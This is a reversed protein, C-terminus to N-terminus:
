KQSERSQQKCINAYGLLILSPTHLHALLSPPPPTEEAGRLLGALSGRPWPLPQPLPVRRAAAGITPPAPLLGAPLCLAAVVRPHRGSGGRAGGGGWPRAGSAGARRGVEGRPGPRRKWGPSQVFPCPRLRSRSRPMMRPPSCAFPAINRCPSLLGNGDSYIRMGGAPGPQEAGWWGRWVACCCPVSPCRQLDRSRSLQQPGFIRFM